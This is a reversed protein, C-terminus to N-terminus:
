WLTLKWHPLQNFDYGGHKTEVCRLDWLSVTREVSGTATISGPGHHVSSWVHLRPIIECGSGSGTIQARFSMILGVVSGSVRVCGEFVWSFQDYLRAWVGKSWTILAVPLEPITLAPLSLLVLVSVLDSSGVSIAEVLVFREVLWFQLDGSSTKNFFLFDEIHSVFSCATSALGTNSPIPFIRDATTEHFPAVTRPFETAHPIPMVLLFLSFFSSNIWM